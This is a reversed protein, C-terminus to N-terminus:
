PGNRVPVGRTRRTGWGSCYVAGNADIGCAGFPIYQGDMNVFHLDANVLLPTNQSVDCCDPSGWTYPLGDTGLAFVQEFNGNALAQFTHGGAVLLPDPALMTTDGHGLGGFWNLGWCYAQHATTLGCTLDNGFAVDMFQYGPAVAIPTPYV